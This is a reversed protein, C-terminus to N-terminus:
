IGFNGPSQKPVITGRLSMPSSIASGTGITASYDGEQCHYPPTDNRAAEKKDNRAGPLHTAIENLSIRLEVTLISILAADM